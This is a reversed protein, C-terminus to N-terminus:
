WRAAHLPEMIMKMQQAVDRSWRGMYAAELVDDEQQAYALGLAFYALTAHLRSDLDPIASAANDWVPQRHGRLVISYPDTKTLRPWLYMLGGWVSYYLPNTDTAQTLSAYNQEALEQSMYALRYGRAIDLVSIISPLNLDSPLTLSTNGPLLTVAWVTEQRPWQNTMAMTRDFAEQLYMNLISDPLDTEDVDM